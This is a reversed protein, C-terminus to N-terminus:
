MRRYWWECWRPLTVAGWPRGLRLLRNCKQWAWSPLGRLGCPCTPAHPPPCELRSCVTRDVLRGVGICTFCAMSCIRSDGQPHVPSTRFVYSFVFISNSNLFNNVEKTETTYQYRLARHMQQISIGCHVTCFCVVSNLTLAAAAKGLNRSWWLGRHWPVAISSSDMYCAGVVAWSIGKM